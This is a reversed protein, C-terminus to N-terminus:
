LLAGGIQVWDLHYVVAVLARDVPCGMSSDPKNTLRLEQHDSQAWIQLSTTTKLTRIQPKPQSHTHTRPLLLLPATRQVHSSLLVTPIRMVM